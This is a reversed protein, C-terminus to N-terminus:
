LANDSDVLVIRRRDEVYRVHTDYSVDFHNNRLKRISQLFVLSGVFLNIRRVKNLSKIKVFFITDRAVSNKKGDEIGTLITTKSYIALKMVSIRALIVPIPQKEATKWPTVNGSRIRSSHHSPAASPPYRLLCSYLAQRCSVSSFRFSSRRKVPSM